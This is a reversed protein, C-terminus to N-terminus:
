EIRIHDYLYELNHFKRVGSSVQLSFLSMTTVFAAHPIIKLSGFRDEPVPKEMLIVRGKGKMVFAQM